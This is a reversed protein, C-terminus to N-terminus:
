QYTINLHQKVWKLCDGDTESCMDPDHQKIFKGQYSIDVIPNVEM